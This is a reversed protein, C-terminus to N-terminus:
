WGYRRTPVVVKQAPFSATETTASKVSSALKEGGVYHISTNLQDMERGDM